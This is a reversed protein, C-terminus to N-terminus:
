NQEDPLNPLPLIDIGEELLARAEEADAQGYIGRAEAEGYHIRRAEEPFSRGVDTGVEKVAAHMAKILTRLKHAREDMLAISSPSPAAPESRAPQAPANTGGGGAVGAGGGTPASPAAPDPATETSRSPERGAVVAPAMLARQVAVSGCHPCALLGREHQTEFASSSAFWGDFRHGDDCRLSYHIM